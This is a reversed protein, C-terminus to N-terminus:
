LKEQAIRSAFPLYFARELIKEANAITPLSGRMAWRALEALVHHLVKGYGLEPAISPRFGCVQQLYYKYPCEMFTMLQGFDTEM